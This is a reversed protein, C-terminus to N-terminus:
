SSIHLAHRTCRTCGRRWVMRYVRRVVVLCVWVIWSCIYRFWKYTRPNSACWLSLKDGWVFPSWLSLSFHQNHSKTMVLSFVLAVRVDDPLRNCVQVMALNALQISSVIGGLARPVDTRASRNEGSRLVELLPWSPPSRRWFELLAGEDPQLPPLFLLFGAM